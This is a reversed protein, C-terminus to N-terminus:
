IKAVLCSNANLRCTVKDYVTKINTGQSSTKLRKGSTGKTSPKTVKKDSKSLTGSTIDIQYSMVCLVLIANATLCYNMDFSFCNFHFQILLTIPPDM